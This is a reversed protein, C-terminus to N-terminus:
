IRNMPISLVTSATSGHYPPQPLLKDASVASDKFGFVHVRFEGRPFWETRVINSPNGNFIFAAPFRCMIIAVGNQDSTVTKGTPAAPINSAHAARVAEILKLLETETGDFFTVDAMNIPSRTAENIVRVSITVTTEGDIHGDARQADPAATALEPALLLVLLMSAIIVTSYLKMHSQPSKM